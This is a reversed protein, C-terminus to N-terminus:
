TATCCKAAHFSTMAAMRSNHCLFLFGVGDTSAYKRSSCKQWIEDWDLKLYHSRLIKKFLDGWCCSACCFHSLHCYILEHDLFNFYHSCVMIHQWLIRHIIYM